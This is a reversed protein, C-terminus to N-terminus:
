YHVAESEASAAGSSCVECVTSVVELHFLPLVGCDKFAIVASLDVARL